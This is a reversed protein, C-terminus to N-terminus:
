TNGSYECFGSCKELDCAPVHYSNNSEVGKYDKFRYFWGAFAEDDLKERVSSFFNLAQITERYVWVKPQGGAVGPDRSLVMEAQKTLLEEDDMPKTNEWITRGNSWDFAVVGYKLAEEVDYMGSYNCAYLITSNRMDWTPRWKPLYPGWPSPQADRLSTASIPAAILILVAVLCLLLDQQSCGPAPTSALTRM